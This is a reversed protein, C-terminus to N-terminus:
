LYAEIKRTRRTSGISRGGKEPNAAGITSASMFADGVSTKRKKPRLDMREDVAIHCDMSQVLLIVRCTREGRNSVRVCRASGGMKTETISLDNSHSKLQRPSFM